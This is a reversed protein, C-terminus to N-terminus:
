EGAEATLGRASHYYDRLVEWALKRQGEPDILGKRNWYGQFRGHFRRPSRFDKLIWPSMGAYNPIRATMAVYQRYIEAQYDESWRVSPDARYGHLAGAGFESLIIPKDFRTEWRVGAVEPPTLPGYWGDYRNIALVDLHAALPDNVRILNGDDLGGAEPMKDMAASILRSPDAARAEDILRQLFRNRADNIPTENAVSWIVVSPRNMDRAIMARLMASAEAYTAESGFAIDWYVPIESWVLLGMEDALRVMTETHPYHALRVFNSGLAKAESLLARAAAEDLVRTPTTGIAEEHISVGLLTLPQGNLFLKNGRREITRFGIRDTVSDAGAALTLRYLQPSEPSWRAAKRPLPITGSVRGEADAKASWSRSLDPLSFRVEAGASDPGDLQAAFAIRGASDLGIRYDRIFTAPLEVLRVPRTIGGYNQWDFDEAPITDLGHAADVSVVLSNSGAQLKGTVEFEFPTFGGRHRGLLEGNLFVRTDYNAAEFHLVYRKGPQPAAEVKRRFWVMGEYMAMEPIQSNWDGPVTMLPSTDWDYELLPHNTAPRDQPFNRQMGRKRIGLRSRDVIYRWQGSLDTGTRARINEITVPPEAAPEPVPDARATGAILALFLSLAKINQLGTM